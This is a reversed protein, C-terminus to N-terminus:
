WCNVRAEVEVLQLGGISRFHSFYTWSDLPWDSAFFQDESRGYVVHIIAGSLDSIQSLELVLRFSYMCVMCVLCM